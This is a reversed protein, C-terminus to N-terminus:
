SATVNHMRCTLSGSMGLSLAAPVVSALGDAYSFDVNQDGAWSVLTYGPSRGFGTFFYKAIKTTSLEQFRAQNNGATSTKLKL